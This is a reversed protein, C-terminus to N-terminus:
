NLSDSRGPARWRIQLGDRPRGLFVPRCLFLVSLDYLVWVTACGTWSCPGGRVQAEAEVIEEFHAAPRVRSKKREPGLFPLPRPSFGMGVRGTPPLSTFSPSDSSARALSKKRPQGTTEMETSFDQSPDQEPRLVPVPTARLGSPTAAHRIMGACARGQLLVTLSPENRASCAQVSTGYSNARGVIPDSLSNRAGATPPRWCFRKEPCPDIPTTCSPLSCSYDLSNGALPPPSMM